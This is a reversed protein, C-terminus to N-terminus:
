ATYAVLARELMERYAWQPWVGERQDVLTPGDFVAVTPLAEIGFTRAINRAQTESLRAVMARGAFEDALDELMQAIFTCSECKSKSFAVLVPMGAGTVRAEFDGDNWDPLMKMPNQDDCSLARYGAYRKAFCARACPM